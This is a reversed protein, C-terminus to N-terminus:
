GSRLSASWTGYCVQVAFDWAKLTGPTVGTKGIDSRWRPQNINEFMCVPTGGANYAIASNGADGTDYWGLVDGVEM